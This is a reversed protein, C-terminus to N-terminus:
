RRRAASATSAPHVRAAAATEAQSGCRAHISACTLSPRLAMLM